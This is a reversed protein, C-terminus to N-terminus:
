IRFTDFITGDEFFEMENCEISEKVADDSTLYMYETTLQKYIQHSLNKRLTELDEEFENVLKELLPTERHNNLDISVYRTKEHSYHNSYSNKEIAGSLYDVITLLHRYKKCDLHKVLKEFDFCKTEFCAGDGQNWFGSYYIEVDEFGIEELQCKWDDLLHDAWGQYEVNWNRNKEIVKEQVESALENFKYVELTEQRM